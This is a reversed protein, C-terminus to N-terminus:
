VSQRVKEMAGCEILGEKLGDAMQSVPNVDIYKPQGRFKLRKMLYAMKEADTGTSSSRGKGALKTQLDKDFTASFVLTQRPPLEADDSDEEAEPDVRDLAGIISEAEQFQGAKFLRDAEDVVLFQIRTFATQLKMDGEMVEWLRGPTGVVIDAKELQRQQKQISLGGTVICVYPASSLNDCLAKIHDGLQKALERTPSLILALPGKREAGDQQADQLELWQEVIPIGFALTKGSGTQAKGIVDAGSLIEPISQQQILTPQSFGLKAIGSLVRPSLGLAAWAEVDTNEEEGVSELASFANSATDKRNTDLATDKKETKKKDKKQKEQKPKTEPVKDAKEFKETSEEGETEEENDSFGEFSEGDDADEEDPVAAAPANEAVVFSVKDGSRVVDVGEIIELGGFEEVGVMQWALSSADNVTKTPGTAKKGQKKAPNRRKNSAEAGGQLKRKKPLQAM